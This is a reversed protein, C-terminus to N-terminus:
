LPEVAIISDFMITLHPFNIINKYYKYYYFVNEANVTIARHLIFIDTVEQPLTSIYIEATWLLLVDSLWENINYLTTAFM